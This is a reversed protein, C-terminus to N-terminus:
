VFVAFVENSFLFGKATLKLCNGAFEILELEKLRRLDEAYKEILDFGFRKEYDALDIGKTLRLGLFVFESAVNVRTEEVIASGKREIM